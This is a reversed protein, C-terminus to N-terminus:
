PGDRAEDQATWKELLLLVHELVHVHEVHLISLLFFGHALLHFVPFGLEVSQGVSELSLPLFV